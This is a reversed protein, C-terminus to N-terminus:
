FGCIAWGCVLSIFANWLNTSPGIQTTTYTVSSAAGAGAGVSFGTSVVPQGQQTTGYSVDATAHAAAGGGASANEFGGKLDNVSPANSIHSVISIAADPSTAAGIGYEGYFAINGSSDVAIGIGAIAAGFPFKGTISIGLQFTAGNQGTGNPNEPLCLSYCGGSQARSKSKASAASQAPVGTAGTHV